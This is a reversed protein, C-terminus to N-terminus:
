QLCKQVLSIATLPIKHQATNLKQLFHYHGLLHLMAKSTTLIFKPVNATPM